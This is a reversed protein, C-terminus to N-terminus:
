GTLDFMMEVMTRRFGQREFFEQAYENKAAVSLMLKDAGFERAVEISKEILLKGANHKRAREDVYLDHLWVANELLNAYDLREYELYAFGVIENEIEAVLVTADKTENRSGYFNTAGEISAIEAFRHADYERHQAFLKIAYEAVRRADAKTARRVEVAM